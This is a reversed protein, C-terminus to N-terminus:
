SIRQRHPDRTPIWEFGLFNAANEFRSICTARTLDCGAYASVTEGPALDPFPSMLQVTNGAHHVIFRRDGDSRELWGATFWGDEFRQAFGNSVVTSGSVSLVVISTRFDAANVGCGPGYLPRNCQVTYALAPVRRGLSGLLSACQIHAISGDRFAVSAVSGFFVCIPSTLDDRHARYIRLWTKGTPLYPIYEAVIASTRPLQIEVAGNDDEERLEQGGALMAEPEFTGIEPLVIERDASTLFWDTGGRWFHFCEVPKGDYVSIEREEYSM